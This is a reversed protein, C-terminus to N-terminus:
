LVYYIIGSDDFTITLPDTMFPKLVQMCNTPVYSFWHQTIKEKLSLGSEEILWMIKCFIDALKKFYNHKPFLSIPFSLAVEINVFTYAFPM